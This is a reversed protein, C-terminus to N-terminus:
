VKASKFLPIVELLIFLCMGFVALVIAIGGFRIVFTM